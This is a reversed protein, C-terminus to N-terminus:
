ASIALSLTGQRPYYRSREFLAVATASNAFDHGFGFDEGGPVPFQQVLDHVADGPGLDLRAQRDGALQNEEVPRDAGLNEKALPGLAPSGLHDVPEAAVQLRAKGPHLAEAWAVELVHARQPLCPRVRLYHWLTHCKQRPAMEPEQQVADFVGLGPVPVQRHGDTLAPAAVGEAVHDLALQMGPFPLGKGIETLGQRGLVRLHRDLHQPIWVVEVEQGEGMRQFFALEFAAQEGV